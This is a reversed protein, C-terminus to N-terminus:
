LEIAQNIARNDDPHGPLGYAQLYLLSRKGRVYSECRIGM